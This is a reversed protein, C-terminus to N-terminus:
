NVAVTGEGSKRANPVACTLTSVSPGPPPVEPPIWNVITGGAMVEREDFEVGDHLGEPTVRVTVPVFKTGPETTLQTLLGGGASGAASVVVNTLEVCSLAVIGAEFIAEVPVTCISTDLKPTREFAIGKVIEGEDGGAGVIVVTDGDVAVAPAAPVVKTTVPVFIRGHETTCHVLAPPVV